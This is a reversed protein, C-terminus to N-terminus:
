EMKLITMLADKNSKILELESPHIEDYQQPIGGMQQISQDLQSILAQKQSEPIDPNAMIQDKQAQLQSVVEPVTQQTQMASLGYAVRSLVYFFRETKWGRGTLYEQLESGYNTGPAPAATPDYKQGTSEAWQSFAPWDAMFKTLEEGTFPEFEDSSGAIVPPISLCLIVSVCLVILRKKM